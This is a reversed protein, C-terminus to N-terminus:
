GTGSGNPGASRTTGPQGVPSPGAFAGALPSRAKVLRRGFVSAFADACVKAVEELDHRVGTLQELSTMVGADFGCSLIGDFDKLDTSVNLAFGHTTVWRRLHIGISALKRTGVWVGIRERDEGGEAVVGFAAATQLLVAQLDRVYARVNRCDRALDLVPYGVLQGPGHYTARGGRNCAVVDIGRRRLWEGTALVDKRDCNRGTTYTPPHELLLLTDAADSARSLIGQRLREQLEVGERYGVRGLWASRIVSRDPEPGDVALDAVM